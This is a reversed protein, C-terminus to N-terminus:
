AEDEIWILSVMRGTKGKERRYSYFREADSYTCFEGGFIQNVGQEKLQFTAIAYLNMLWKGHAKSQFCHNQKPFQEFVEQGVEYHHPGIAPGLWALLENSETMMATITKGIISTALGRWGAHVAAIEKGKQDCLLLPLCDATLIPCLINAMNSIIADAQIPRQVNASPNRIVQNSHTQKLWIPESPLNFKQILKQRNAAIHEPTDDPTMNIDSQRTITMAKIHRPAPWHPSIYSLSLPFTM